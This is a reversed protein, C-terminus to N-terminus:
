AMITDIESNAIAVIVPVDPIDKLTAYLTSNGNAWIRAGSSHYIPYGTYPTVYQITTSGIKTPPTFQASAYQGMLIYFDVIKNTEDHTYFVDGYYRELGDVLNYNATGCSQQCYKYVNCVITGGTTVGIIIDELFQDSTGNDHCSTASMKFYTAKTNYDVSIFKVQRPNGANTNGINNVFNPLRGSAASSIASDTQTKTYVDSSNAKSGLASNVDSTKAYISVDPIDDILAVQQAAEQGTANDYILYQLGDHSVRFQNYKNSVSDYASIQAGWRNNGAGYWSDSINIQGANALGAGKARLGIKGNSGIILPTGSGDMTVNGGFSTTGGISLNGTLAGGALPLYESAKAYTLAINKGDGDATAKSATGNLNGVFSTATLTNTSPNITIGSAFQVNSTTEGAGTNSKILVPFESSATSASQKVNSPYAPLKVSSGTVGTVHGKADRQISVGSLFSGGWALVGGGSASASLTANSDAAPTYHNGVSTVKSDSSSIVDTDITINSGATLINQKVEILDTFHNTNVYASSGLGQIAIDSVTGNIDVSITGNASGTTISRVGSNSIVTGSVSVGNAGTYTTDTFKANAPVSSKITLGSDKIIKGSSGDFLVVNGSTSSAPGTVAGDINAQVVSWHSDNATTGSTTCIVLDGVECNQGAYKGATAVKYTWGKTHVSPLSSVTGGSGLTGEFTLADADALKSAVVGQVFATTAIQTSDTSLDATPATPVGTLATNDLMDEKSENIVNGLGVSTPSLTISAASSGDYTAITTGSNSKITLASPNKLAEPKNSLDKYDGSSAVVALGDLKRKDSATMLGDETSTVASYTTDTTSYIDHKTGNIDITASRVGSTLYRTVDVNDASYAIEDLKKKDTASMLGAASQSANSYTTDPIALAYTTDDDKTVTLVTNDISLGSVTNEKISYTSYIDRGKADATAKVATGDASLFEKEAWNKINDSLRKLGEQTLTKGDM